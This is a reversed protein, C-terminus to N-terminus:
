EVRAYLNASLGGILVVQYNSAIRAIPPPSGNAKKKRSIRNRIHPHTAIPM